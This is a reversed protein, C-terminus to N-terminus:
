PGSISGLAPFVNLHRPCILLSILPHATFYRSNIVTDRLIVPEAHTFSTIIHWVFPNIPRSTIIDTKGWWPCHGVGGEVRGCIGREPPIAKFLVSPRILFCPFSFCHSFSNHSFLLFLYFLFCVPSPTISLNSPLLYIILLYFILSVLESSQFYQVFSPFLSCLLYFPSCTPYLSLPPPFQSLLLALAM